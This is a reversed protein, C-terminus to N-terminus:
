IRRYFFHWNCKTQEALSRLLSDSPLAVGEAIDNIIVELSSFAARYHWDLDQLLSATECSPCHIQLDNDDSWQRLLDQWDQFKHKCAPCSPASTNKGGLFCGGQEYYKIQIKHSDHGSTEKITPSCGLFSILTSFANGARYQHSTNSQLKPDILDVQKLTALITNIIEVKQSMAEPYLVLQESM